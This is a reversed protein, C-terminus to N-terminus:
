RKGKRCAAMRIQKGANMVRRMDERIQKGFAHKCGSRRRSDLFM